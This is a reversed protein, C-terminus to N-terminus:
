ALALAGALEPSLSVATRTRAEALTKRACEECRGCCTAVKLERRLGDFSRIGREAAERIDRDTVANCICVYM